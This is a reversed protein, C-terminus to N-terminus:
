PLLAAITEAILAYGADKAHIDPGVPDADCM